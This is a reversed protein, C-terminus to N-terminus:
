AGPQKQFLHHDGTCTQVGSNVEFVRFIILLMLLCAVYMIASVSCIMLFMFHLISVDLLAVSRPIENCSKYALKREEGRSLVQLTM